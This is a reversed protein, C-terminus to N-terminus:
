LEDELYEISLSEWLSEQVKRIEILAKIGEKTLKYLRKSRGGRESTPDSLSSILYKKKELRELPLYVANLLWRMGTMETLKRAITVGYANGQLKWVALLVMEEQRTLFKMPAEDSKSKEIIKLSIIM